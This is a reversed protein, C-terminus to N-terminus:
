EYQIIHKKDDDVACVSMSDQSYREKEITVEFWTKNDDKVKKFDYVEDGMLLYTYKSDKPLNETKLTMLQEGENEELELESIKQTNVPIGEFSNWSPNLKMNKMKEFSFYLDKFVYETVEFVVYEPKFINFYYDFDMVNQYAHVGIYEGLSNEFFKCGMENIYSGQFVLAKPSGEAKREDNVAYHFYNNEQDMKLENSYLETKDTLNCSGIFSPIEEEIPFNSVPLSTEIYSEVRFEDKSNIHVDPDSQKMSELMHNVGYFAGIDNWHGADYQKNFVAEGQAHKERLVDSNDIYNIGQRELEAEFEKVWDDRYNFGDPLEQSIVSSKEPEFCFLFPVNREECYNQIKKVMKAFETHYDSYSINEGAQFFIYGNKGYMYTPHVLQHFVNNHFMTYGYIMDDRFGIRDEIYNEIGATLDVEGDTEFNSGFPNNTLVRNDIRSVVNEEWNFKLVPVLLLVFFCVCVIIRLKKM